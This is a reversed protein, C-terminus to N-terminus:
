PKIRVERPKVRIDAQEDQCTLWFDVDAAFADHVACQKAWEAEAVRQIESLIKMPIGKREFLAQLYRHYTLEDVFVRAEDTEGIWGHATAYWQMPEKM